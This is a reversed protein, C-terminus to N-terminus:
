FDDFVEFLKENITSPEVGYEKKIDAPIMKDLHSLIDNVAQDTKYQNAILRLVYAQIKIVATKCEDLTYKKGESLISWEFDKYIDSPIEPCDNDYCGQFADRYQSETEIGRSKLLKVFEETSVIRRHVRINFYVWLGDVKKRGVKGQRFLTGCTGVCIVAGKDRPSWLKNKKIEEGIQKATRPHNDSLVKLIAQSLNLDKKLLREKTLTLIKAKVKEDLQLRPFNNNQKQPKDKNGNCVGRVYKVVTPDNNIHLEEIINIVTEFRDDDNAVGYIQPILIYAIKNPKNECYSRPRSIIQILDAKNYRPDIFVVTDLSPINIGDTVMRCNILISLQLSEGFQKLSAMNKKSDEKSTMKFLRAKEFRKDKKLLEFMANVSKISNAYMLIKNPKYELDATLLDWLMTVSKVRRVRCEDPEKLEKLEEAKEEGFDYAGVVISAPTMFKNKIADEIDNYSITNTPHGFYEPDNMFVCSTDMIYNGIVPTATAFVTLSPGKNQKMLVLPHTDTKKRALYHAEDFVFMKRMDTDLLPKLRQFSDNCVFLITKERKLCIGNLDDDSICFKSKSSSLEAVRVNTFIDQWRSIMDGILSLRPCIYVFMDFIDFYDFAIKQFMITKGCRCMIYLKLITNIDGVSLIQQIRVYEGSQYGRLALPFQREHEKECLALYEEYETNKKKQEELAKECVKREAKELYKELDDGHLLEYEISPHKQLVNQVDSLVLPKTIWETGGDDFDEHTTTSCRAFEKKFITEVLTHNKTLVIFYPRLNHLPYSTKYTSSRDVWNECSGIKTWETHVLDVCSAFYVVPSSDM